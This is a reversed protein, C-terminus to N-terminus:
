ASRSNVIISRRPFARGGTVQVRGELRAIEAGVGGLQELVATM